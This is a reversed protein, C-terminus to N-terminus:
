KENERMSESIHRCIEYREEGYCLGFGGGVGNEGLNFDVGNLM